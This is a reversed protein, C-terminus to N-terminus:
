WLLRNDEVQQLTQTDGPNGNALLADAIRRELDEVRCPWLVYDRSDAAQVKEAATVLELVPMNAKKLLDRRQEDGLGPALLLLEGDTLKEEPLSWSRSSAEYGAIKLLSELVGCVVPDGGIITVRALAPIQDM